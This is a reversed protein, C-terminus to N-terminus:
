KQKKSAVKDGGLLRKLIAALRHRLEAEAIAHARLGRVNRTVGSAARTYSDLAADHVLEKWVEFGANSAADRAEEDTLRQSAGLAELFGHFPSTLAAWYQVEAGLSRALEKVRSPDPKGSQDEELQPSLMEAALKETSSTLAFATDDALRLASRLIERCRQDRLLGATVPLQERRWMRVKQQDTAFGLVELRCTFDRPLEGDAVLEAVWDLTLTRRRAGDIGHIIASSDRWVSREPTIRYQFWPREEPKADPKLVFSQMSETQFPNWLLPVHYGPVLKVQAIQNAGNTALCFLRSRRSQWTFLDVRGDPTREGRGQTTEREWCPLDKQNEVPDYAALNLMLTRFLNTGRLLCVGGRATPADSARKDADKECSKLYGVTGGLAFTQHTVLARAAEVPSMGQTRADTTHDALTANNGSSRHFELIGTTRPEDTETISSLQYFPYTEDFLDFRKGWKEWYSHLVDSPFYGRRWMEGWADSDRPGLNRHLIALLLRHLAAVVLPSDDTIESIGQASALADALGVSRVQGDLNLCRIWPEQILNFTLM